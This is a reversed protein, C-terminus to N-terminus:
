LMRYSAADFVTCDGSQGNAVFLRNSSPVYRVGQPEHLGPLTHIRKGAKLDVAELTNNGLAAVFLRKHVADAALPDIRREVGPLPIVQVRAVLPAAQACLGTVLLLSIFAIGRQM